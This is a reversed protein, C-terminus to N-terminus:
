GRWEAVECEFMHFRYVVITFLLLLLLLKSSSLEPTVITPNTTVLQYDSGYDIISTSNGCRVFYSWSSGPSSNRLGAFGYLMGGTPIYYDSSTTTWVVGRADQTVSWGIPSHLESFGPAIFYVQSIGLNTTNRLYLELYWSSGNNSCYITLPSAQMAPAIVLGFSLMCLLLTIILKVKYASSRIQEKM